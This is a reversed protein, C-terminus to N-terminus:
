LGLEGWRGNQPVQIRTIPHVEWGAAADFRM